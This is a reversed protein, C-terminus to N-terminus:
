NDLNVAYNMPFQVHVVIKWACAPTPSTFTIFFPGGGFVTSSVGLSLLVLDDTTPISAVERVVPAVPQRAAAVDVDQRAVAAVLAEAVAVAMAETATTTATTM